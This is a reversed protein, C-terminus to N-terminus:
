FVGPFSLTVGIVMMDVAIAAVIMGVLRTTVMLGTPGLARAIPMALRLTVYTLIVMLAIACAIMGYDSLGAAGQSQLILTAIGGPGALLPIAIPCIAQSDGQSEAPADSATEDEQPESAKSHLMALGMLLVIIGGAIRFSGISIAFFALLQQGLVAATILAALVTFSSVAALRRRCGANRRRTIHVFIPIAIVPNMIAFLAAFFTWFNGRDFAFLHSLHAFAQGTVSASGLGFTAAAYIAGGGFLASLAFTYTGSHGHLARM